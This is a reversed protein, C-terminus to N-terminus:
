FVMNGNREDVQLHEKYDDLFSRELQQYEEVVVKQKFYLKANKKINEMIRRMGESKEFRVKLVDSNRMRIYFTQEFYYIRDIKILPLVKVDTAYESSGRLLRFHPCRM